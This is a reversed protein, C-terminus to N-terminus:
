LDPFKRRVRLARASSASALLRKWLTRLKLASYTVLKVNDDLNISKGSVRFYFARTKLLKTRAKYANSVQGQKAGQDPQRAINQSVGLLLSKAHRCGLSQPSVICVLLASAVRSTVDIRQSPKTRPHEE